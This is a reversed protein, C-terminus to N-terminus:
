LIFKDYSKCFHGSAISSKYSLISGRNSGCILRSFNLDKSLFFKSTKRHEGM